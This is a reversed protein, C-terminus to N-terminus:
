SPPSVKVNIVKIFKCLKELIVINCSNFLQDFKYINPNSWCYTPLFKKREFMFSGCNMIYHYEDGIDNSDCLCCIRDERPLGHWRGSEIPLHHSGCRYKCLTYIFKHPLVSFYKELQFNNKFIRYCLIEM